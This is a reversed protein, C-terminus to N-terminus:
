AAKRMEESEEYNWARQIANRYQRWARDHYTAGWDRQL